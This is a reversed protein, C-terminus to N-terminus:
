KSNLDVGANCLRTTGKYQKSYPKTWGGFDHWDVSLSPNDDYNPWQERLGTVGWQVM